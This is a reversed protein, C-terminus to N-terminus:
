CLFNPDSLNLEPLDKDVPRLRNVLNLPDILPIQANLEQWGKFYSLELEEVAHTRVLENKSKSFIEFKMEKGGFNTTVVTENTGNKSWDGRYCVSNKKLKKIEQSDSLAILYTKGLNVCIEDYATKTLFNDLSKSVETQLEKARQKTMKLDYNEILTDAEIVGYQASLILIDLNEPLYGEREAKHIVRFNVGDYRELAPLLGADPRKRQSCALILLYRSKTPQNRIKEMFVSDPLNM